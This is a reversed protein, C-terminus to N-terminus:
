EVGGTAAQLARVYRELEVTPIRVAGGIRVTRLRGAAIQQYLFARSISLREAAEQIRLLLKGEVEGSAM